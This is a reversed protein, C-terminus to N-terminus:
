FWIREDTMLGLAILFNFQALSKFFLFIWVKLLYADGLVLVLSRLSRPRSVPSLIPTTPVFSEQDTRGM